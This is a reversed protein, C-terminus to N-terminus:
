VILIITVFSFTLNVSLGSLLHHKSRLSTIILPDDQFRGWWAERRYQLDAQRAVPGQTTQPAQNSRLGRMFPNSTLTPMSEVSPHQFAGMRSPDPSNAYTVIVSVFGSRSPM